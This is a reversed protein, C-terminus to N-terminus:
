ELQDPGTQARPAKPQQRHWNMQPRLVAVRQILADLQDRREMYDLLARAKVSRTEGQLSDWDVGLDFVVSQLEEFTFVDNLMAQLRNLRAAKDEPTLDIEPLHKKLADVFIPDALLDRAWLIILTSSSKKGQRTEQPSPRQQLGHRIAVVQWKEDFCPAGAAGVARFPSFLDIRLDGDAGSQAQAFELRQPGGQVHHLISLSRGATVPEPTLSLWGRVMDEGPVLDDGPSDKLRALIYGLPVNGEFGFGTDNKAVLWDDAFRYVTPAGAAGNPAELDDFKAQKIGQEWKRRDAERTTIWSPLLLLDPAVLFGTCITEAGEVKCVARMAQRMGLAWNFILEPAAWVPGTQDFSNLPMAKPLANLQERPMSRNLINIVSGTFNGSLSVNSGTIVSGTFNGAVVTDGPSTPGAPYKEGGPVTLQQQLAQLIRNDPQRQLAREVLAETKGQREFLTAVSLLTNNYTSDGTPLKGIEDPFEAQLFAMLSDHTEFSNFLGQAVQDLLAATLTGPPAGGSLSGRLLAVLGSVFPQTPAHLAFLQRFFDPWDDPQAAGVAAMAREPQGADLLQAVNALASASQKRQKGPARSWDRLLAALQRRGAEAAFTASFATVARGVTEPREVGIEEVVDLLLGPQSRLATDALADLAEHAQDITAPEPACENPDLRCLRLRHMLIELALLERRAPEPAADLGAIRALLKAARGFHGLKENARLAVFLLDLELAVDGAQRASFLGENAVIRAEPYRGLTELAQAELRFLPSGPLRDRIESLLQLAEAPRNVALADQARTAVFEEKSQADAENWDFEIGGTTTGLKSILYGRRELPIEDIAERLLNVIGEMWRADIEERPQALFLRHYIEEARAEPTAPQRTYFEVALRHIEFVAEGETQILPRLMRKRIDPRHRLMRPGELTVLSAQQALRGFLAEAVEDSPVDVHCPGALVERILAPTVRRLTLGPHALRQIEPDRIRGLYRRYLWGQNLEHDITLEDFDPPLETLSALALHKEAQEQQLADLTLRLSLPDGGVLRYIAAAVGPHTVGRWALYGKTAEEDLEKLEFPDHAIHENLRARGSVIVRMYPFLAQLDNLFDWLALTFDFSLEQVREFTDLLLVLRLEQAQPLETILRRLEYLSQSLGERGQVIARQGAERYAGKAGTGQGTRALRGAASQALETLWQQRLDRALPKIPLLQLGLQRVLEALLTVPEEPLLTARDFDWYAFAFNPTRAEDITELVFKALLTSKGVGGAGYIMLPLSQYISRQPQVEALYRHLRALEEGRGRFHDGVLQRFPQLLQQWELRDIVDQRSPLGDIVGELWDLVQLTATLEEVTQDELRPLKKAIVAEFIRQLTDQPRLKNARLARKIASRTGLAILAPRRVSNRLTWQWGEGATQVRECEELLDLVADEDGDYRRDLPRLAEPNFTSLVAAAFRYSQLALEEPTLEPVDSVGPAKSQAAM